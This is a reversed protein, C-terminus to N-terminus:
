GRLAQLGDMFEKVVQRQRSLNTEVLRKYHDEDFGLGLEERVARIAPLLLPSMRFLAEFCRQMYVLWEGRLEADLANQSTRTDEARKAEFEFTKQVFEWRAPERDGAFNLQKMLEVMRDREAGFAKIQEGLVALRNQKQLIPFRALSLELVTATLETSYTSVATVTESSGIMSVKAFAGRLDSIEQGLQQQPVSLDPHRGIISLGNVLAEAAELYVEKRLLMDREIKKQAQDHRLQRQFRREHGRNTFLIGVLAAIAAALTGLFTVVAAVIAAKSTDPLAALAKVITDV